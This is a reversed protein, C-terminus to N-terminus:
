PPVMKFSVLLLVERYIAIILSHIMTAVDPIETVRNALVQGVGFQPVVEKSVDLRNADM